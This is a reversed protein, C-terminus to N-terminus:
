YHEDPFLYGFECFYNEYQGFISEILEDHSVKNDAQTQDDDDDQDSFSDNEQNKQSSEVPINRYKDFEKNEILNVLNNGKNRDYQYFNSINRSLHCYWRNKLAPGTRGVFYKSIQSWCTGLEKVKSRLLLDEEITWEDHNVNPSLYNIYRDRCQRGNRGPIAAAIKDWKCPGTKQVISLLLEDEEQTFKRKLHKVPLSHHCQLNNWQNVYNFNMSSITFSGYNM